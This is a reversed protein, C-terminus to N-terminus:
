VRDWRLKPRFVGVRDVHMESGVAGTDELTISLVHEEYAFPKYGPSGAVLSLTYSGPLLLNGPIECRVSYAGTDRQGQNEPKDSDYAEFLTTGDPMNLMFGVRGQRLREHIRYDITVTFPLQVDLNATIEGAANRVTAGHLKLETVGAHATGESWVIQGSASSNELLYRPVIAATAGMDVLKGQDLWIAHQCLRSIAGMNHSVFLVTNGRRTVDSMKGMCKRQFAADGVALVEDVILVDPELHAAVAFALRMYM